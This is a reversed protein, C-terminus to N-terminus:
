VKSQKVTQLSHACYSFRQSFTRLKFCGLACWNLQHKTTKYYLNATAIYHPQRNQCKEATSVWIHWIFTIQQLFYLKESQVANSDLVTVPLKERTPARDLQKDCETVYLYEAKVSHESTRQLRGTQDWIQIHQIVHCYYKHSNALAWVTCIQSWALPSRPPASLYCLSM